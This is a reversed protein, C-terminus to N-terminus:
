DDFIADFIELEDVWSKGSKKTKKSQAVPKKAPPRTSPKQGVFVPRSKQKKKKFFM